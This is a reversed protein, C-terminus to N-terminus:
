GCLNFISEFLDQTVASWLPTERKEEEGHLQLKTVHKGTSGDSRQLELARQYSGNRSWTAQLLNSTAEPSVENLTPETKIHPHEGFQFGAM